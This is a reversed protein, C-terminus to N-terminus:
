VASILALVANRIKGVANGTKVAQKETSRLARGSTKEFGLFSRKAKNIDRDVNKFHKSSIGSLSEGSKNSNKVLGILARNIKDLQRRASDAGKAQVDIAVGSM